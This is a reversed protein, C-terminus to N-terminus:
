RALVHFTFTWIILVRRQTLSARFSSYARSHMANTAMNNKFARSLLRHRPRAAPTRVSVSVSSVFRVLPRPTVPVVSVIFAAPMAAPTAAHVYFPFAPSVVILPLPCAAPQHKRM